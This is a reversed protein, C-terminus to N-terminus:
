DLEVGTADLQLLAVNKSACDGHDSCSKGSGDPVLMAQVRAQRGSATKPVFFSHGHMRLHAGTTADKIEMWCGMEQCVSTVTGHTTFPRNAFAAPDKAVDALAVEPASIPAGLRVVNSATAVPAPLAAKAASTPSARPPQPSTTASTTTPGQNCAAVALTCAFALTSRMMIVSAYRLAPKTAQLALRGHTLIAPPLQEDRPRVCRKGFRLV